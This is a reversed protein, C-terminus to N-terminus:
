AGLSDLLTRAAVLDATDLGETFRAYIPALLDHAGTPDGTSTWFRALSTAARLTLAPEGRRRAVELARRLRAEADPSPGLAEGAIRHLEAEFARAGSEELVACEADVIALADAARGDKCTPLPSAPGPRATALEVEHRARRRVRAGDGRNGEAPAGAEALAWGRMFEGWGLWDPFGQETAVAILAEAVDRVRDPERRLQHVCAAFLLAISLSLPHGRERAFDVCRERASSRGM